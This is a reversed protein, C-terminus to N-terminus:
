RCLLRGLVLQNATKIHSRDATVWVVFYVSKDPFRSLEWLECTQPTKLSKARTQAWRRKRWAGSSVQWLSTLAGPLRWAMLVRLCFCLSAESLLNLSCMRDLNPWCAREAYLNLCLHDTFLSRFPFWYLERRIFRDAKLLSVDRFQIFGTPYIM